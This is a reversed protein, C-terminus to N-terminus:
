QRTSLVRVGLVAVLTESRTASKRPTKGELYAGAARGWSGGLGPDCRQRADTGLGRAVDARRRRRGPRRVFYFVGPRRRPPLPSATLCGPAPWWFLLPQATSGGAAPPPTPSTPQASVKCSQLALGAASCPRKPHDPSYGRGMRGPPGPGPPHSPWSVQDPRAGQGQGPHPMVVLATVPRPNQSPFPPPHTLRGAGAGDTQARRPHFEAEVGPGGPGRRRREAQM